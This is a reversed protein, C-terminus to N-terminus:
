KQPIMWTFLILCGIHPASTCNQRCSCCLLCPGAELLPHACPGHPFYGWLQSCLPHSTSRPPPTGKAILLHLSCYTCSPLSTPLLISMIYFWSPFVSQRSFFLQWAYPSANLSGRPFTGWSARCCVPQLLWGDSWYTLPLCLFNGEWIGRVWGHVTGVLLMVKDLIQRAKWSHRLCVRLRCFVPLRSLSVSFSGGM